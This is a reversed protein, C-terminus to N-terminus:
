VDECIMVRTNKLEPGFLKFILQQKVFGHVGYTLGDPEPALSTKVSKSQLLICALLATRVTKLQFHMQCLDVSEDRDM